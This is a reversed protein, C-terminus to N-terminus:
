IKERNIYYLWTYLISLAYHIFKLLSLSYIVRHFCKTRKGKINILKVPGSKELYKQVLSDLEHTSFFVFQYIRMKYIIILMVPTDIKQRFVKELNYTCLLRRCPPINFQFNYNLFMVMSDHFYKIHIKCDEVMYHIIQSVKFM